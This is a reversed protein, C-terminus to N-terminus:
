VGNQSSNSSEIFARIIEIAKNEIVYGNGSTYKMWRIAEGPTATGAHILEGLRVIEDRLERFKRYNTYSEPRNEMGIWKAINQFADTINEALCHCGIGGTEGTLGYLEDHETYPLAVEANHPIKHSCYGSTTGAPQMNKRFFVCDVCM